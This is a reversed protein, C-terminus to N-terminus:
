QGQPWHVVFFLRGSKDAEGATREGLVLYEGRRITVDVNLGQAVLAAAAIAEAAADAGAAASTRLPSFTLQIDVSVSDANARVRQNIQLAGGRANANTGSQTTLTTSDLVSFGLDGHTRELQQLVSDLQKPAATPANPKRPEGYIVWYELTVRPTPGANRAAIAKLVAAVQAQAAEPAGVLLQGTPLLEARCPNIGPTQIAVQACQAQLVQNLADRIEKANKADVEYVATDAAATAALLLLGLPALLRLRM